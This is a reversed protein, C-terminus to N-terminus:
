DKIYYVTDKNRHDTKIQQKEKYKELNRKLSKEKRRKKEKEM